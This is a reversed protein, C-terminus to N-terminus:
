RGSVDVTQAGDNEEYSGLGEGQRWGAKALLVFPWLRSFKLATLKVNGGCNYHFQAEQKLAQKM